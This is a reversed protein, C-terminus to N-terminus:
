EEPDPLQAFIEPRHEKLWSAAAEGDLEVEPELNATYCYARIPVIEPHTPELFTVVEELESGEWEEEALAVIEEGTAEELWETADVTLETAPPLEPADDAGDEIVQEAQALSVADIAIKLTVYPTTDTSM